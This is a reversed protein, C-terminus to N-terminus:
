SKRIKVLHREGEVQPVDLNIAETLFGSENLQQIEEQPLTGKMALLETEDSLLHDLWAVMNNLSTFARSTVQNIKHPNFEESDLTEVRAQIAQVNSLGLEVIAQRCFRIKKGNSDVLTVQMDPFCIALPIGPLGAGTGVDLLSSASIYPVISLSDLLHLSVMENIDRVATLNFKKNWKELLLLYDFLATEQDPSIKLDLDIIGQHLKEEPTM